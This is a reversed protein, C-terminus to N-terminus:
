IINPSGMGNNRGSVASHNRKRLAMSAPVRSFTDTVYNIKSIIQDNPSGGFLYGNLLNGSMAYRTEHSSPAPTATIASATDTSYTLKDQTTNALNTGSGPGVYGVTINGTAGGGYRSASLDMAPIRSSTDSSYAIKTVSSLHGGPTTGGCVYGATKNGTPQTGRTSYPLNAGSIRSTSDNSFTMKEVSSLPGPNGAVFYGATGSSTAGLETKDNELNSGSPLAATTETSYTIKDVTSLDVPESSLGGAFYGATESGTAAGKSRKGPLNSGPAAVSTETTYTFKDVTSVYDNGPSGGGLNFANNPSSQAVSPSPIETPPTPFTPYTRAGTGALAYRAASLNATTIRSQTEDSYSLKNVSSRSSPRGGCFYGASLNGTSGATDSNGTALNSSAPLSANTETSFTLRETNSRYPSSGGSFYGATSSSSAGFYARSNDLNAGPIREVTNSAYEIKDVSTAYGTVYGGVFYANTPSSVAGLGYKSETLQCGSELNQNTDNSFTIKYVQSRTSPTGAAFYGFGLTGNGIAAHSAIPTNINASPTYATTDSSYTLKDVTSKPGPEGGGFYGATFSSCAALRYRAASLNGGPIRATTDSSFSIKDVISSPTGGGVYGTDPPEAAGDTFRKTPSGHWVEPLPVWEGKSKLSGTLRLGFVGRTDAM